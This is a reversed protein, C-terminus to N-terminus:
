IGIRAAAYPVDDEVLDERSLVEPTQIAQGVSWGERFYLDDHRDPLFWRAMSKGFAPTGAAAGWARAPRGHVQLSWGNGFQNDSNVLVDNDWTFRWTVIGDDPVQGAPLDPADEGTLPYVPVACAALVVVAVLM